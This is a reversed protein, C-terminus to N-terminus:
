RPAIGSGEQGHGKVRRDFASTQRSSASRRNGLQLGVTRVRGGAIRTRLASLALRQRLTVLGKASFRVKTATTELVPNEPRKPVSKNLRRLELELTQTRRKLAAIESRYAAASKRLGAIENRVKKRAVRVIEAKLVSAINPMLAITFRNQQQAQGM